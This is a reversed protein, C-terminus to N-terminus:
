YCNYCIEILQFPDDDLSSNFRACGSNFTISHLLLLTSMISEMTGNIFDNCEHKNFASIIKCSTLKFPTAKGVYLTTM